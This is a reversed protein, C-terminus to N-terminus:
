EKGVRREESKRDLERGHLTERVSPGDLHGATDWHRKTCLTPQVREHKAKGQQKTEHGRHLRLAGEQFEIRVSGGFRWARVCGVLGQQRFVTVKGIRSVGAVVEAESEIKGNGGLAVEEHQREHRLSLVSQQSQLELVGAM